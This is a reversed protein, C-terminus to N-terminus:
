RNRAFYYSIFLCYWFSAFSYVIERVENHLLPLIILKYIITLSILFMLRPYVVESGGEQVRSPRVGQDGGEPLTRGTAESVM